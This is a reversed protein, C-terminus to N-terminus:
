FIDLEEAETGESYPPSGEGSLVDGSPADGSLTGGSPEGGSPAEPAPNASAPDAPPPVAPAAAAVVAQVNSFGKNVADEFEDLRVLAALIGEEIRGQEERFRQVAEELEAIRKHCGDLEGRLRVNESNARHVYDIAKGIKTELQRVQELTVM